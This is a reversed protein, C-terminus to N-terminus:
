LQVGAQRCVGEVGHVTRAMGATDGASAANLAETLGAVCTQLSGLQGASAMLAANASDLSGQIGQLWLNTADYTGQAQTREAERLIRTKMAGALTARNAEVTDNTTGLDDETRELQVQTRDLRDSARNTADLTANWDCAMLGLGVVGVVCALGVAARRRRGTLARAREVIRRRARREGAIRRNM